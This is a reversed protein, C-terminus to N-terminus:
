AEEFPPLYEVMGRADGLAGPALEAVMFADDFAPSRYHLGQPAAPRFGFRAYYAPAGLVFIVMHGGERCAALGARVLASGVGRNQHDPAVAVPGMGVAPWAHAGDHVTVPTFLVHGIIRDGTEAVLSIWPNAIPRSREVIRAEDPQGFARENVGTIGPEDGPREPRIEFVGAM